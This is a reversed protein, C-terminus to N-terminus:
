PRDKSILFRSAADLEGFAYALDMEGWVLAGLLVLYVAFSAKM